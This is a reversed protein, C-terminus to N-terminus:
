ICKFCIACGQDGQFRCLLSVCYYQYFHILVMENIIPKAFALVYLCFACAAMHICFTCQYIFTLMGQLPGMCIYSAAEQYLHLFILPDTHLPIYCTNWMLQLNCMPSKSSNCQMMTKQSGHQNNLRVAASLFSKM